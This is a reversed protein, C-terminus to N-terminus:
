LTQWPPPRTHEYEWMPSPGLEPTRDLDSLSRRLDNFLNLVLRVRPKADGGVVVATEQLM